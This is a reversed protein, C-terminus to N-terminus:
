PRLAALATTGLAPYGHLRLRLRLEVAERTSPDFIQARLWAEGCAELTM